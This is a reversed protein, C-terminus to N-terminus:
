AVKRSPSRERKQLRPRIKKQERDEALILKLGLADLLAGLFVRGIQRVPNQSLPKACYGSQLGSLDGLMEHSVDLTEARHRLAVQLESWSRSKSSPKRRQTLPALPNVRELCPDHAARGKLVERIDARALCAHRAPWFFARRTPPAVPLTYDRHWLYGVGDNQLAPRQRPVLFVQNDVLEAPLPKNLGELYNPCRGHSRPRVGAPQFGGMM